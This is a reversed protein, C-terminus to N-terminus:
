KLPQGLGAELFLSEPREAIYGRHHLTKRAAPLPPVQSGAALLDDVARGPQISLQSQDLRCHQNRDSLQCDFPEQALGLKLLQDTASEATADGTAFYRHNWKRM